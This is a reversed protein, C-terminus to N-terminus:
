EHRLAVTPDVRMARRVPVYGAVAAVAVLVFAVAALTAPDNASVRFLMHESWAHLRSHAIGFAMGTLVLILTERAVLRLIMSRSAGLAVRIGIESTRCSVSYSIVGFIGTAALALAIAAFLSLLFHASGPSQLRPRSLTRCGRQM